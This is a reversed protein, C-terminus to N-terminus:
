APSAGPWVGKAGALAARGVDVAPGTGDLSVAPALTPARFLRLGLAASTPESASGDRSGPLSTGHPASALRPRANSPSRERPTYVTVRRVATSRRIGHHCPGRKTTGRNGAPGRCDA